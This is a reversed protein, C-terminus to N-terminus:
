LSLAGFLGLVVALLAYCIVACKFTPTILIHKIQQNQLKALGKLKAAINNILPSVSM